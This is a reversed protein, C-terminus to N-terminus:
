LGHPSGALSKRDMFTFFCVPSSVSDGEKVTWFVFLPTEQHDLSHSDEKCRLFRPKSGKIPFQSRTHQLLGSGVRTASSFGCVRVPFACGGCHLCLGWIAMVFVFWKVYFPYLSFTGFLFLIDWSGASCSSPVFGSLQFLTWAALACLSFSPLTPSKLLSPAFISCRGVSEQWFPRVSKIWGYGTLLLEKRPLSYHTPDEPFFFCCQSLRRPRTM